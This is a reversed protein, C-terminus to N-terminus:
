YICYDSNLWGNHAQGIWTRCNTISPDDSVDFRVRWSAWGDSVPATGLGFQALLPKPAGFAECEPGIPAKLLRPVSCGGYTEKLHKWAKNYFPVIWGITARGKAMLPGTMSIAVDANCSVRTTTPNPSPGAQDLYGLIKAPADPHCVCKADVVKPASSILIGLLTPILFALILFPIRAAGPRRRRLPLSTSDMASSM